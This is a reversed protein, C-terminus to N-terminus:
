WDALLADVDEKTVPKGALKQAAQQHAKSGYLIAGALTLPGSGGAAPVGARGLVYKEYRGAEEDVRSLVLWDGSAEEEATLVAKGLSMLEIGAVKLATKPITQCYPAAEAAPILGAAALIAKAAVPAQELAAPIIGWAVGEFEACDGVAYVDPDSTRMSSDVVIGRNVTLGAGAALRVDPRVGMSLIVTDAPFRRGDKLSVTGVRADLAALAGSATEAGEFAAIEAGLAVDVGMAALRSRLLSAGTEDLQRPLLRGALEFVQVERVGAAKLARAAELGLLGGGVVVARDPHREASRRISGVDDLTRLTFVGERASGPVPPRNAVSGTALVLVDYPASSGDAFSVTKAARDVSVAERGTHVAIGRKEYWESKYFAISEATAEGSLVEPLRIRSYMPYREAGYIDVQVAPAADAGAGAGARAMIGAAVNVGAIGNGIIVVRM